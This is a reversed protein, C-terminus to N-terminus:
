SPGGIPSTTPMSAPTIQRKLLGHQEAGHGVHCNFCDVTAIKHDPPDPGLLETTHCQVCVDPAPQRLLWPYNAEHPAHCWLCEVSSVPGHMVSYQSTVDQHCRLCVDSTVTDPAPRFLATVGGAHCADCKDEAFPRHSFVVMPQGGPLRGRVSGGTAVQERPDPVGDFFFSLVRYRSESTCGLWLVSSGVVLAIATERLLRARTPYRRGMPPASEGAPRGTQVFTQRHGGCIELSV